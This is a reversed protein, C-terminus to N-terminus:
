DNIAANPRGINPGRVDDDLFAIIQPCKSVLEDAVRAPANRPWLSKPLWWPKGWMRFYENHSKTLYAARVIKTTHDDDRSRMFSVAFRPARYKDFAVLIVDVFSDVRRELRIERGSVTRNSDGRAVGVLAFGAKVLERVFREEIFRGLTRTPEGALRLWNALRRQHAGTGSM